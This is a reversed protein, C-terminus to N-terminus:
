EKFPDEFSGIFTLDNYLSGPIEEHFTANNWCYYSNGETIGLSKAKEIIKQNTAVSNTTLECVLEEIPIVKNDATGYAYFWDTDIFSSGFDRCAPCSFGLSELGETYLNFEDITKHTTGMWVSTVDWTSDDVWGKRKGHKKLIDVCAVVEDWKEHFVVTIEQLLENEDLCEPDGLKHEDFTETGSLKFTVCHDGISLCVTDSLFGNSPDGYECYLRPDDERDATIDLYDGVSDWKVFLGTIDEYDIHVETDDNADFRVAM